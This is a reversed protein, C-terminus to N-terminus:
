NTEGNKQETYAKHETIYAQKDINFLIESAPYSYDGMTFEGHLDDWFENFETAKLYDEFLKSHGEKPEREFNRILFVCVLETSDILFQSALIDVNEEIKELEELTRGHSTSGTKNRIEGIQQGITALASAIQSEQNNYGMSSFAKKLVVNINPNAKLEEGNAKCIEKGVSELLAKANEIARNFDIEIDAKIRDVYRSSLISRRGYEAIVEELKDM